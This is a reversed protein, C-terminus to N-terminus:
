RRMPQPSYLLAFTGLLKPFLASFRSVGWRVGPENVISQGVTGCFLISLISLAEDLDTIPGIQGLRVADALADRFQAAGLGRLPDVRRPQSTTVPTWLLLQALAPHALCWSGAADLGAVIAGFGPEAQAMQAQAAEDFGQQGREFLSDYIAALSDFYKYISPPKVGLRRAIESLSVGGVGSEKM